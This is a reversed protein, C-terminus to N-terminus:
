VYQCKVHHPTWGHHLVVLVPRSTNKAYWLMREQILINKRM